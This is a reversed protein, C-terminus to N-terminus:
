PFSRKSAIKRTPLTDKSAPNNLILGDHVAYALVAILVCREPKYCSPPSIEKGRKAVWDECHRHKISRVAVNGLYIALGKLCIDLRSM